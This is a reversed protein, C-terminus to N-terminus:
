FLNNAEKVRNLTEDEGLIHISEFLPPTVTKGSVSVRILQFMQSVNLGLKEALDRFVQEFEEAKWPRSVKELTSLIESLINKMEGKKAGAVKEFIGKEYEPKQYLFDTLPVFDSLKKIREKILPVIPAIKEKAPHDVLFDELRKTLEEDSMRRIYEGNMWELKTINFVPGVPLVDKLDFKEVFEELTFIEKEEPHSWGM